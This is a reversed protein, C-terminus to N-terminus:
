LGSWPLSGGLHDGGGGKKAGIQERHHRLVTPHRQSPNCECLPCLRVQRLDQRTPVVVHLVGHQVTRHLQVGKVNGENSVESRDELCPIVCPIRGGKQQAASYQRAFRREQGYLSYLLPLRVLFRRIRDHEGAGSWVVEGRPSVEYTSQREEGTNQQTPKRQNSAPGRCLQKLSDTSSVGLEGLDIEFLEVM